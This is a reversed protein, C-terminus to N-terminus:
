PLFLKDLHELQNIDKMLCCNVVFASFRRNLKLYKIYFSLLNSYMMELQASVDFSEGAVFASLLRETRGLHSRAVLSVM